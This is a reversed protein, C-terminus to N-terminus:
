RGAKAKNAIAQGVRRFLAWLSCGVVLSWALSKVFGWFSRALLNTIIEAIKTLDEM